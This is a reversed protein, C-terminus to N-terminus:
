LAFRSLSVCRQLASLALTQRPFSGQVRHETLSLSTVPQTAVSSPGVQHRVVKSSTLPQERRNDHCECRSPGKSDGTCPCFTVGSLLASNSADRCGARQGMAGPESELPRLGSDCCVREGVVGCYCPSGCSFPLAFWLTMLWLIARRSFPRHQYHKMPQSHASRATRFREISLPLTIRYM